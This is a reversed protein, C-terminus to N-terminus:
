WINDTQAKVKSIGDNGSVRSADETLNQCLAKQKQGINPSCFYFTDYDINRKQSTQESGFAM